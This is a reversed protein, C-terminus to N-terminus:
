AQNELADSFAKIVQYSFGNFIRVQMLAMPNIKPNKKARRLARMLEDAIGVVESVLSISGAHSSGPFGKGDRREHHQYVAHVTLSDIGRVGALIRAGEQPHAYYTAAEAPTMDAELKDELESDTVHLGVDHLLAAMGIALHLRELNIKLPEFLLGAVLTAGVAHDYSAADNLYQHLLPHNELRLDNSLKQVNRAFRAAYEVRGHPLGRESLFKLTEEGANLVQSVKIETPISPHALLAGALHDCYALYNAHADKRIHFSTVGKKLYSSVREESFNDGAQLVKVFRGSALRVYVDFFSKHGSLFNEIHIPSFETEVARSEEDLADANTRAAHTISAAASFEPVIPAVIALIEAYTLPKKLAQQVALRKLEGAPFPPEDGDHIVFLPTGVHHLHACRIVSLGGPHEIKPNVFIGAYRRSRDALIAQAEKGTMATVPPALSTAPDKKLWELFEADPDIVLTPLRGDLQLM